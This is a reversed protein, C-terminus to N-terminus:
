SFFIFYALGAFLWPFFLLIGLVILVCIYTAILFSFIPSKKSKKPSLSEVLISGLLLFPFSLLALIIASFLTKFIALFFSALVPNTDPGTPTADFNNEELLQIANPITDNVNFFQFGSPTVYIIFLLISFTVFSTALVSWTWSLNFKKQIWNRIVRSVGVIALVILSLVFVGILFRAIDVFTTVIDVM